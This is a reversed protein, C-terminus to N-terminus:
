SKSRRKRRILFNTRSGIRKSRNNDVMPTSRLISFILPAKQIFRFISKEICNYLRQSLSKILGLRAIAGYELAVLLAVLIGILWGLIVVSLLGLIVLLMAVVVRQLSTVDNLLKERALVRKADRDGIDVRHELEFESLESHVPRIATVILLMIFVVVTSVLSFIFM